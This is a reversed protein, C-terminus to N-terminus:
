GDTRERLRAFTAVDEGNVGYGRMIGEPTMKLGKVYWKCAMARDALASTQLRRAGNALLDDMLFRTAKTISRWHADWSASTGIMWSQWVQPGVMDYGGAVIPNDSDDVLTFKVGSRNFHGNAVQDVNWKEGVLAEYQAIEDPRAAAALRLLDLMTPTVLRM